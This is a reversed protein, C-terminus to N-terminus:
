SSSFTLLAHDAGFDLSRLVTNTGTTVNPVLMLDQTACGVLGAVAARVRRLEATYDFWLAYDPAAEVRDRWAQQATLVSRPCSEFSGHDLSRYDSAYFIPNAPQPGHPNAVHFCKQNAHLRDRPPARKAPPGATALSAPRAWEFRRM